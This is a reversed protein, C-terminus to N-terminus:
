DRTVEPSLTVSGELLRRIDGNSLTIEVDYVASRWAAGITTVPSFILEITGLAGGLAISGEVSSLEILVQTSDKSERLQARATCGVLNVLTAPTGSKWTFLERNTAGQDLKINHKFAAM